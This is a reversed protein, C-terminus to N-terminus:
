RDSPPFKELITSALTELTADDLRDQRRGSEKWGRWVLEGNDADIIDILLLREVSSRGGGLSVGGGFGGSGMGISVRSGSGGAQERDVVHYTVLFDAAKPEVQQYGRDSLVGAVIGAVRRDMLTSDHEPDEVGEREPARWAFQQYDAFSAERDYETKVPAACASLVGALLLLLPMSWYSKM